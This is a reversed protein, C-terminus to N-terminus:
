MAAFTLKGIHLYFRYYYSQGAVRRGLQEEGAAVDDRRQRSQRVAMHM